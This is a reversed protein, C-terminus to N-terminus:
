KSKGNSEDEYKEYNGLIKLDITEAGLGMLANKVACDELNGEFDIFFRYEWPRDELPRSEIKTMSIGNYIFHSLANYLTGSEHAIEFCISIKNSAATFVAERSVIIFRTSNTDSFNITEQLVKLGYIEAAEVSAIAAQTKDNDEQVKKASLATNQMSIQKWDKHTELYKASQMLGQPHSYVTQIDSIESDATGLLAQEISIIHEGVIYNDYEVLLDYSANVIGASSNEIPLVAYDADGKKIAEMADKFTDVCFNEIEDGFYEKMARQSHAGPVGQFIVKINEKKFSDVFHFANKEPKGHENLLQYQLKRSMAMIQTFLEEVGHSTFDSNTLTKVQEIKAKERERDFVPKDTEIKYKAVAESVKMRKEYLEVIQTDISDIENRLELLDM